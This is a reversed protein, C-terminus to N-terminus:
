SMLYKLDSSCQLASPSELYVSGTLVLTLGLPCRRRWVLPFHVLWKLVLASFCWFRGPIIQLSPCCANVDVDCTWEFVSQKEHNHISMALPWLNGDHPTSSCLLGDLFKSFHKLRNPDCSWSTLSLLPLKTDWSITVNRCTFPTCYM